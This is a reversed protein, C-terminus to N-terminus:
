RAGFLPDVPRAGQMGSAEFSHLVGTDDFSGFGLYGEGCLSVDAVLVPAEDGDFWVRLVPGNRKMHVRHRSSPDGWVVGKTRSTTVQRRPAGDVLFVGHANDDASSALHVYGFHTPDHYAFFMCLDRHPYERGDQQVEAWLEFDAFSERRWLAIGQPARVPPRYAAPKELALEARGDAGERGRFADDDSTVWEAPVLMGPGVANTGCSCLAAFCWLLGVIRM